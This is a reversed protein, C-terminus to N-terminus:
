GTRRSSSTSRIRWSAFMSATTGAAMSGTRADLYHAGERVNVPSTTRARFTTTLHDCLRPAPGVNAVYRAAVWTTEGNGLLLYWWRNGGVDTGSVKCNITIRKGAPLLGVRTSHSSPTGRVSLGRSAVVRGAFADFDDCATAPGSAAVGGITALAVLVVLTRQKM